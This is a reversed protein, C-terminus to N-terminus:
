YKIRSQFSNIKSVKEFGINDILEKELESQITQDTNGVYAVCKMLNEDNMTGFIDRTGYSKLFKFEQFNIVGDMSNFVNQAQSRRGIRNITDVVNQACYALKVNDEDPVLRTYTRPVRLRKSFLRKEQVNM